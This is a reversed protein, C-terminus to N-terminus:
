QFILSSVKATTQARQCLNHPIPRSNTVPKVLGIATGFRVAREVSCHVTLLPLIPSMNGFDETVAGPGLHSQFVVNLNFLLRLGGRQLTQRSFHFLSLKPSLKGVLKWPVIQRWCWLTRDRALSMERGGFESLRPIGRNSVM